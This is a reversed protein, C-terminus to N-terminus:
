ANVMMARLVAIPTSIDGSWCGPCPLVKLGSTPFARLPLEKESMFTNYSEHTHMVELSLDCHMFRFVPSPLIHPLTKHAHLDLM